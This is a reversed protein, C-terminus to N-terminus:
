ITGRKMGGEFLSVYPISKKLNTWDFIRCYVGNLSFLDNKCVPFPNIEKEERNDFLTIQYNTNETEHCSYPVVCKLGDM